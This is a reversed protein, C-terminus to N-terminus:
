LQRMTATTGCSAGLQSSGTQAQQQATLRATQSRTQAHVDCLMPLREQAVTQSRGYRVIEVHTQLERGSAVTGGGDGFILLWDLPASNSRRWALMVWMRAMCAARADWNPFASHQQENVLILPCTLEHPSWILLPLMPLLM